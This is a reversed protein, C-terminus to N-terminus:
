NSKISQLGFKQLRLRRDLAHHSVMLTDPTSMGRRSSSSRKWQQQGARSVLAQVVAPPPRRADANPNAAASPCRAQDVADASAQGDGQGAFRAPSRRAARGGGAQGAARWRCFWDSVTGVPGHLEPLDRWPASTQRVWPMGSLIRRHDENPRGTWPKEPPLLPELRRWRADMLERRRAGMSILAHVRFTRRKSM